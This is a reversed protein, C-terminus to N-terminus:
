ILKLDAAADNGYAVVVEYSVKQGDNLAAIGAREVASIHVYIDKDGNSPRIFGCGKKANFWKVTGDAM